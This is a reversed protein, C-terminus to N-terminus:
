SNMRLKIIRVIRLITSEVGKVTLGVYPLQSIARSTLGERYYCWFIMYDRLFNSSDACANFYRDIAQLLIKREMKESSYAFLANCDLQVENIGRGRMQSNFKRFHDRVTNSAIVSLFGALADEHRNEFRRLVRFDNACLKLYTEQVMDDVIFRPPSKWRYIAKVVASTIVPNARRIFESWHADEPSSCLCIQLLEYLPSELDPATIQSENHL